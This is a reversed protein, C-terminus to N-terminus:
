SARAPPCPNIVISNKSDLIVDESNYATVQYCVFSQDPYNDDKYEQPTLIFYNARDFSLLSTALEGNKLIEFTSMTRDKSVKLGRDNTSLIERSSLQSNDFPMKFIVLDYYDLQFVGTRTYRTQLYLADYDGSLLVRFPDADIRISNYLVDSGLSVALGIVVLVVAASAVCVIIDTTNM